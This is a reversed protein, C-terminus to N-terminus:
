SEQGGGGGKEPVRNRWPHMSLLVKTYAMVAEVDKGIWTYTIM